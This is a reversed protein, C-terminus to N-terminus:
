KTRPEQVRFVDMWDRMVVRVDEGNCEVALAGRHRPTPAFQFFRWRGSLSRPPHFRVLRDGDLEFAFTDLPFNLGHGIAKVFAEKLTWIAFFAAQRGAADLGRLHAVEAPAFYREALDLCEMRRGGDEVDIGVQRGFTAACVIVGHSHSLNFHLHPEAAPEILVPKGFADATFRLGSAANGTYSALVTRALGRALLFERRTREHAYRDHREREEACLLADFRRVLEPDAADEARLHWVHVEDAELSHRPIFISKSLLEGPRIHQYARGTGRITYEPGNM